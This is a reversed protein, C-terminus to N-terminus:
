TVSFYPLSRTAWITVKVVMADFAARRSTPRTRFTGSLSVSRSALSTGTKWPREFDRASAM